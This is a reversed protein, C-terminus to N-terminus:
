ASLIGHSKLMFADKGLSCMVTITTYEFIYDREQDNDFKASM